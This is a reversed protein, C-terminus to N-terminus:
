MKSHPYGCPCDTTEKGLLRAVSGDTHIFITEGNMICLGAMAATHTDRNYVIASHEAAGDVGPRGSIYNQAALIRQPDHRCVESHARDERILRKHEESIWSLKTSRYLEVAAAGEAKLSTSAAALVSPVHVKSGAKNRPVFHPNKQITRALAIADARKISDPTTNDRMGRFFNSRDTHQAHGRLSSPPM